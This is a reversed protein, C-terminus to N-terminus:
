YGSPRLDAIAADDSSSLWTECIFTFDLHHNIVVDHFVSSKNVSPVPM